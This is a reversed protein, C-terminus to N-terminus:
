LSYSVPRKRLAYRRAKGQLCIGGHYAVVHGRRVHRLLAKSVASRNSVRSRDRGLAALIDRPLAFNGIYNGRREDDTEFDELARLIEKQLPSLGKGMGKLIIALM